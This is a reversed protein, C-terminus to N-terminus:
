RASGATAAAPAGGRGGVSTAGGDVGTGNSWASPGGDKLVVTGSDVEVGDTTVVGTSAPGFASVGAETGGDSDDVPRAFPPIGDQGGCVLVAKGGCSARCQSSLDASCNAYADIDCHLKCDVNAQVTCDANCAAGCQAQCDARGVSACGRGCQVDCQNDCDSVCGRVDDAAACAQDCHTNCNSLCENRCDYRAASICESHCNADCTAACTANATADCKASCQGAVTARCLARFDLSSCAVPCNVDGVVFCNNPILPQQQNGVGCGVWGAGIGLGAVIIALARVAYVGSRSRM